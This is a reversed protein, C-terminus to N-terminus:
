EEGLRNSAYCIISMDYLCITNKAEIKKNNPVIEHNNLNISM